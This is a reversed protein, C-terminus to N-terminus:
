IELFPLQRWVVCVSSRVPPEHKKYNFEIRRRVVHGSEDETNKKQVPSSLQLFCIVFKWDRNLESEWDGLVSFSWLIRYKWWYAWHKLKPKSAVSNGNTQLWLFPCSGEMLPLTAMGSRLYIPYYRWMLVETAAGSNMFGYHLFSQREQLYPNTVDPVYLPFVLCQEIHEETHLVDTNFVKWTLSMSNIFNMLFWYYSINKTVTWRLSWAPVYSCNLCFLFDVRPESLAQWFFFFFNLIKLIWSIGCIERSISTFLYSITFVSCGPWM